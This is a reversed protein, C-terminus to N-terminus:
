NTPMDQCNGQRAFIQEATNADCYGSVCQEDTYCDGGKDRKAECTGDVDYMKTKQCVLPDCCHSDKQCKLGQGSCETCRGPRLASYGDEWYCHLTGCCKPLGRCEENLKKCEIADVEMVSVTVFFLVCVFVVPSVSM